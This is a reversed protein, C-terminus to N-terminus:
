HSVPPVCTGILSARMETDSLKTLFMHVLLCSVNTPSQCHEQRKKKSLASVRTSAQSEEHLLQDGPIEEMGKLSYRSVYCIGM